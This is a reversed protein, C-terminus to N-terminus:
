AGWVFAAPSSTKTRDQRDASARMGSHSLLGRRNGPEAVVESERAPCKARSTPQFLFHESTVQGVTRSGSFLDTPVRPATGGRLGTERMGVKLSGRRGSCSVGIGQWFEPGGGGGGEGGGAGPEM